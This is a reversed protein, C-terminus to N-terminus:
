GKATAPIAKNVLYGGQSIAILGVMYQSIPPFGHTQPKNGAVLLAIEAAYVVLLVISFFLMQVRAIDIHAADALEEGTFLDRWRAQGMQKNVVLVGQNALQDSATGTSAAVTALAAKAADDPVSTNKKGALILASGVLSTTGIGMLALLEPPMRIDIAAPDRNVLNIVTMSLIATFVVLSWGAIQLRALSIVNRGDILIGLYHQTIWQGLAGFILMMALLDFALTLAYDGQTATYIAGAICGASLLAIGLSALVVPRNNDVDTM